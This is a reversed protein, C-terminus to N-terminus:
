SKIKALISPHHLFEAKTWTFRFFWLVGVPKRCELLQVVSTSLVLLPKESIKRPVKTSMWSKTWIRTLSLYSLIKYTLFRHLNCTYNRHMNVCVSIFGMRSFPVQYNLAVFILANRVKRLEQLVCDFTSASDTASCSYTNTSTHDRMSSKQDLFMSVSLPHFSSGVTNYQSVTKDPLELDLHNRSRFHFSFFYLVLVIWVVELWPHTKWSAKLTLRINQDPSPPPAFHKQFIAHENHTSAAGSCALINLPNGKCYIFLGSM